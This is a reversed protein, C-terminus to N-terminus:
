SATKSDIWALYRALPPPPDLSSKPCVLSCIIIIVINWCFLFTDFSYTKFRNQWYSLLDTWLCKQFENREYWSTSASRKTHMGARPSWMFTSISSNSFGPRAYISAIGVDILLFGLFYFICCFGVIADFCSINLYPKISKSIDYYM